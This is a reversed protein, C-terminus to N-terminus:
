FVLVRQHDVELGAPPLLLVQSFEAPSVPCVGKMLAYGAIGRAQSSPTYAFYELNDIRSTTEIISQLDCGQWMGEPSHQGTLTYIGDEIFVVRTFIDQHACAVALTIAGKTFETGYPSHTALIVLSPKKGKPFVGIRPIRRHAVVDLSFSTHSLIRHGRTFRSAIHHLSRIRAHPILSASIVKGNEGTFTSYGRCAASEPCLLYLPSLGAKVASNYVYLLSKGINECNIPRQDRHMAHVGDLYGYLEPSIGRRVATRFLDVVGSASHYMYPSHMLLFGISSTGPPTGPVDLLCDWLSRGSTDDGPAVPIIQDPFRMRFPEISIRRMCLDMPEFICQFCPLRFLIEWFHVHQRRILSYCADGLLFFTFPPTLTRPHHHLSDPYLRTSYYKLLEVLWSLRETTLSELTFFVNGNM